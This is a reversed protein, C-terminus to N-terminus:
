LLQIHLYYAPIKQLIWVLLKTIHQAESKKRNLQGEARGSSDAPVRGARGAARRPRINECSTPVQRPKRVSQEGSWPGRRAQSLYRKRANHYLIARRTWQAPRHFEKHIQACHPPHIGPFELPMGILNGEASKVREGYDTCSQPTLAM